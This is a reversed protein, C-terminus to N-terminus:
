FTGASARPASRAYAASRITTELVNRSVEWPVPPISTKTMLVAADFCARYGFSDLDDLQTLKMTQTVGESAVSVEYSESEVIGSITVTVPIATSSAATLQAATESWTDAGDTSVEGAGPVLPSGLLTSALEFGHLGMSIATGGGDTPDDQWRRDASLYPRIDHRVVIDASTIHQGALEARLKQVGKSFRLVSATFFRSENGSVARNLQDLAPLSAAAVKNVFCFAGSRLTAAVIQPIRNPRATIIVLEESWKLLSELTDHIVPHFRTVFARLRAPDDADWVGIVYGADSASQADSFAHSHAVGAIGVRM